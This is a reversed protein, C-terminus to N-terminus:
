TIHGEKEESNTVEINKLNVVELTELIEIASPSIVFSDINKICWELYDPNGEYQVRLKRGNSLWENAVDEGIFEKHLFYQLSIESLKELPEGPSCECAIAMINDELGKKDGAFIQLITKGKHKKFNVVSDIDFITNM